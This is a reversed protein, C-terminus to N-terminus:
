SRIYAGTFYSLDATGIIDAAGGTVQYTYLEVYDDGDLYVLASVHPALGMGTTGQSASGRKFSGGNKHISLVAAGSTSGMYTAASIQYYGAVTPTFRNSAFKGDTDFVENAYVIKQWTTNAIAQTSAYVQFAPGIVNVSSTTAPITITNSGAEAPVSITVDGSTSGKLVINSM